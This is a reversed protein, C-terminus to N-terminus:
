VNDSGDTELSLRDVLSAYRSLLGLFRLTDGAPVQGEFLTNDATVFGWEALASAFTPHPDALGIRCSRFQGAKLRDVVSDDLVVQGRDLEIVRNVLPAVEELRHSAILMSADRREALLDIFVARAAPDLNAAPEDFILLDAPRALAITVLVKQKQGGSLRYFPRSAIEKLDIGMEGAIMDMKVPDAASGKASFALLEGVPMRLPPPMQPVFAVRSLMDLDRRGKGAGDFAIGGAFRYHGLLCRFLTTKGAGNSGILAIRDGAKISLTLEDLVARKEFRKTLKNIRIMGM